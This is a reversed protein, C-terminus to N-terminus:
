KNKENIVGRKKRLRKRKFNLIRVLIKIEFLDIKNKLTLKFPYKYKTMKDGREQYTGGSGTFIDQINM